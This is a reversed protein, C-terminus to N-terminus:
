KEGELAEINKKALPALPSGPYDNVLSHLTALARDKRGMRMECDAALLLLQDVYPSDPNVTRLQEAQAIAQAFKGRGSWYRAFMLTLYGDLRAAPYAGLWTEIEEAARVYQQAAIFAETSRAHAGRKATEVNFQRSASLIREAELYAKRAAKGDGTAADYDGRVRQLQAAVARVGPGEGLPLPSLLKEAAELLPKAAAPRLLDNVAIDAAALECAAKTEAADARRAAASWIEFATPSDGLRFRAMPGVLAALKLLGDGKAVKGDRLGAQVAHVAKSLYSEAQGPKALAKAEFALALQRLSAADLQSPDYDEIIRLYEDLTHTDKGPPLEPRDIYIRNTAKATRVGRRISLTVEYLGPRLYVHDVNLLESSQGDGFDWRIKAGPATLTQPSLNHFKVGLMPVPDDPLPM